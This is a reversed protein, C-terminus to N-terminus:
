KKAKTAPAPKNTKSEKIYEDFKVALRNHEEQSCVFQWEGITNVDPRLYGIITYAVLSGLDTRHNREISFANVKAWDFGFTCSDIDDYVVALKREELSKVRSSLWENLTKLDEIQELLAKNNFM